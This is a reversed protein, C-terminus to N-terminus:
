RGRTTWAPALRGLKEFGEMTPAQVRGFEGAGNGVSKMTFVEFGLFTDTKLVERGLQKDFLSRIGGGVLDAKYFANEYVGVTMPRAPKLGAPAGPKLYYTAYGAPPVDRVIIEVKERDAPEGPIPALAQLEVATGDASRITFAGALKPIEVTVPGSRAWAQDNFVVIPM